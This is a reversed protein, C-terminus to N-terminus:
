EKRLFIKGASTKGGSSAPRVRAQLSLTREVISFCMKQKKYDKL